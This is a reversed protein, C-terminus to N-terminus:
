QQSARARLEAVKAIKAAHIGVVALFLKAEPAYAGTDPLYKQLVEATPETLMELEDKSYLLESEIQAKVAPNSIGRTAIATGISGILGWVFPALQKNAENAEATRLGGSGEGMLALVKNRTKERKIESWAIKGDATLPIVISGAKEGGPDVPAPAPASSPAPASDAPASFDPAPEKPLEEAGDVPRPPEPMATVKSRRTAM